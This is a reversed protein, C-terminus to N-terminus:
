GLQRAIGRRIRATTRHLLRSTRALEADRAAIYDAHLAPKPGAPEPHEPDYGFREFDRAYIERILAMDAAGPTQEVEPGKRGKSSRKNVPGIARPGSPGGALGDLYPVIADLGHELHFVTCNEPMFDIQPRVHNDATFPDTERRELQHKLWNSFTITCPATRGVEIQFHYASVIRAVPHRVVAFVVDLMAEPLLFQLSVWDVHQPSTRSWREAKEHWMFANDLFGVPRFREKLYAEVSRGGCKPAHAFSCLKEGIRFIPMRAGHQRSADRSADKKPLPARRKLPIKSHLM